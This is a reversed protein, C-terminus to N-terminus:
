DPLLDVLWQELPALCEYHAFCLGPLQDSLVTDAPQDFVAHLSDHRLWDARPHDAPLGGPVRKYKQGGVEVGKHKKLTNAVAELRACTVPDMVAQRYCELAVPSFSHMGAGLVLSEPMLRFFYGRRERSPGNGQWFWLDLYAKYPPKDNSFRIDRNIAFISETSGRSPM